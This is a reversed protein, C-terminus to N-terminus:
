DPYLLNGPYVYHRAPHNTTNGSGERARYHFCNYVSEACFFQFVRWAAWRWKPLEEVIAPLYEDPVIPIWPPQSESFPLVRVEGDFQEFSLFTSFWYGASNFSLFHVSFLSLEADGLDVVPTVSVGDREGGAIADTGSGFEGNGATGYNWGNDFVRKRWQDEYSDPFRLWRDVMRGLKKAHMVPFGHYDSSIDFM